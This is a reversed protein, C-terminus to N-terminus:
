KKLSTPIRTFHLKPGNKILIQALIAWFHVHQDIEPPIKLRLIGLFDLFDFLRFFATQFALIYGNTTSKRMTDIRLCPPAGLRKFNLIKM